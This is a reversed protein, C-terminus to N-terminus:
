QQQLMRRHKGQPAVGVPGVHMLDVAAAVYGIVPRALQYTVGDEVQAGQVVGVAAPQARHVKDALHFLRQDAEAAAKPYM